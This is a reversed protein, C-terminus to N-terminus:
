YSSYRVWWFRKASSASECYFDICRVITTLGLYTIESTPSTWIRLSRRKVCQYVCLGIKEMFCHALFFVFTDLNILKLDEKSQSYCWHHLKTHVPYTPFSTSQYGHHHWTLCFSASSHHFGTTRM